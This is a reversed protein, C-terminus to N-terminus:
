RYTFENIFREGGRNHLGVVIITECKDFVGRWIYRVCNPRRDPFDPDIRGKVTGLFTRSQYDGFDERICHMDKRFRSEGFNDLSGVEFRKTWEKFDLSAEAALMEDLWTEVLQKDNNEM